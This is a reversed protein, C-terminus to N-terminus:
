EGSKIETLAPRSVQDPAKKHKERGQKILKTLDTGFGYEEVLKYYKFLAMLVKKM